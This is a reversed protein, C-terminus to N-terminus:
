EYITKVIQRPFVEELETGLDDSNYQIDWDCYDMTFFKGTAVEELIITHDAGGDEPDSHTIEDEILVYPLHKVAEKMYDGHTIIEHLMERDITKKERIRTEM